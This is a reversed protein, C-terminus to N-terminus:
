TKCVRYVNKTYGIVYFYILLKQRVGYKLENSSYLLSHYIVSLTRRIYFVGQRLFVSMSKRIRMTPPTNTMFACNARFKLPSSVLGPYSERRV